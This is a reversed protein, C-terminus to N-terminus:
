AAGKAGFGHVYSSCVPRQSSCLLREGLARVQLPYIGQCAKEIEKGIAEPIFKGM